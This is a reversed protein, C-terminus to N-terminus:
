GETREREGACHSDKLRDIQADLEDPRMRCVSEREPWIKLIDSPGDPGVWVQPGIVWTPLNLEVVKPYMLRAYDELGGHGHADHAFILMAVFGDCRDCQLLKSEVMQGPDRMPPPPEVPVSMGPDPNGKMRDMQGIIEQTLPELISRRTNTMPDAADGVVECSIHTQGGVDKLRIRGLEGLDQHRFAYVHEGDLQQKTVKIEPPLRFGM